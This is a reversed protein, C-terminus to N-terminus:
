ECEECVTEAYYEDTSMIDAKKDDLQTKIRKLDKLLMKYTHVKKETKELQEELFQIYGIDHDSRYKTLYEQMEHGNMSDITRDKIQGM